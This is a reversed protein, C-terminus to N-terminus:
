GAAPVHRKQVTALIPDRPRLTIVTDLVATATSRATLHVHQIMTALIVQAELMAFMNGLCVRPGAGFPLYAYRDPQNAPDLFREPRYVLPEPFLDARRHLAFINFMLIAKKPFYTDGISFPEIVSRGFGFAPPYLRLTEKIVAELYPLEALDSFQIPREGLVTDIENKLHILSDHHRTLLYWTWTLAAATTEHGAVFMTVCEDLLQAEPMLHGDEDRVNMLMSLLDGQDGGQRRKQAIIDRLLAHIQAKHERHQRNDRTPLWAPPPMTSKLQREAISLLGLMAAGVDAVQAALDVGYMTKAIIRLTLEILEQNINVTSGDAWATVMDRTYDAMVDTYERIRIAHFAPQVLKRQRKWTEGEAIFVGQGMIRGFVRTVFPDRHMQGAHKILLERFMAPESIFFMEMWLMKLHALGGEQEVVDTMFALQDNQMQQMESFSLRRMGFKGSPNFQAVSRQTLM